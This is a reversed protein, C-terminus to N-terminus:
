PLFALSLECAGGITRRQHGQRSNRRCNGKMADDILFNRSLVVCPGIAYDGIRTAMEIARFRFRNDRKTM